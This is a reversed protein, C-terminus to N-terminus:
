ADRVIRQLPKIMEEKIRSYIEKRIRPVRSLLLLLSSTIRSKYDKQPFDYLAHKRYHADDARFPFRLRARVDDRFIKRGGTGLFTAPKMSGTEVGWILNEGLQRLQADLAESDGSEDTVIDVLNAQHLQVYAELIQRLNPIQGLPGSVIFGVQKGALYPMHTNFFSRDFFLKWRSSLYRDRIAGAFVLMDAPRVTQNFFDIFGDKGEYTCTNDYGCRICGLCGGKIDVGSLYVTQIEQAFSDRFREIMRQLNPADTAEDAILVIKRSGADLKAPAPGPLYDFAHHTVPPFAKSPRARREIARFFEQGFLVLQERSNEKLLDYMDASFSGAFKMDLDDCIARLYNHATHDFFHISTTLVATYKGRFAEEKRREFILEIFRKYQSAVTFYYLPFAWLVGDSLQVETVIEQFANEERELVRIQQAINHIKLTHAPFKKGLYDVYQMTVSTSGKPSGNLVAIRMAM